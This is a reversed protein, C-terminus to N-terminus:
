ISRAGPLTETPQEPVPDGFPNKRPADLPRGLTFLSVVFVVLSFYLFLRLVVQSDLKVPSGPVLANLDEKLLEAIRSMREPGSQGTDTELCNNRPRM